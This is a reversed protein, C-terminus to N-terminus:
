FWEEIRAKIEDINGRQEAPTETFKFGKVKNPDAGDLFSEAAQIERDISRFAFMGNEDFHEHQAKEIEDLEAFAETSAISRQTPAIGKRRNMEDYRDRLAKLRRVRAAYIFYLRPTRLIAKIEKIQRIFNTRETSAEKAIRKLILLEMEVLERYKKAGEQCRQLGKQGKNKIEENQKKRM